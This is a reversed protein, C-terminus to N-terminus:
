SLLQEKCAKLAAIGLAPTMEDDCELAIRLKGQISEIELAKLGDHVLEFEEEPTLVRIIMVERVQYDRIEIGAQHEQVSLEMEIEIRTDEASTHELSLWRQKYKLVLGRHDAAEKSEPAFAEPPRLELDIGVQGEDLEELIADTFQVRRDDAFEPDVLTAALYSCLMVAALVGGVTPNGFMFALFSLLATLMSLLCGAREIRVFWIGKRQM